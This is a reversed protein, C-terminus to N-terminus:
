SALHHTHRPLTPGTGSRQCGRWAQGPRSTRTQSHPSLTAARGKRTPRVPAVSVSQAASGGLTPVGEIDTPGPGLQRTREAAQSPPPCLALSAASSEPDGGALARCPVVRAQFQRGRRFAVLRCHTLSLGPSHHASPPQSRDSQVQCGWARPGLGRVAARLSRGPGRAWLGGPHM